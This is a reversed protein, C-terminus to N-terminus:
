FRGTKSLNFCLFGGVGGWNVLLGVKDNYVGVIVLVENDEARQVRNILVDKETM